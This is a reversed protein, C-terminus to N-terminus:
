SSPTANGVCSCLITSCHRQPFNEPSDDRGHIHRAVIFDLYTVGRIRGMVYVYLPEKGKSEDGVQGEFSVTPVLSGYVQSALSAMEMNLQLSKPRFQVVYELCPGAYVTYSCTGQLGFPTAKGGVLEESRADCDRRSASTKAFFDSTQEQM